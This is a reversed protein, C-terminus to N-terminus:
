LDLKTKNKKGGTVQAVQVYYHICRITNYQIRIYLSKRYSQTTTKNLLYTILTYM